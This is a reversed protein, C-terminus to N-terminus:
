RCGPTVSETVWFTYVLCDDAAPPRTPLIARAVPPLTRLYAILARVDEEDWNSAHDWIIGQWHLMRGDPTVGSRLARAVEADSWAGIGTAPDSSINRTWLTGFAAWSIKSGGSGDNGHCFACSAVTFLYRGRAALAVQEPRSFTAPDPKPISATVATAIQEPPILRLAPTRYVALGILGGAVLGIMALATLLWDRARRPFRRAPPGALVFAAAGALLVVWQGGILVRQV